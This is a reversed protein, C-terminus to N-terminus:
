RALIAAALLLLAALSTDGAMQLVRMKRLALRSLVKLRIPRRDERLGATIEDDPATAFYLFSARDVQGRGTLRPRIVLVALLVALVLAAAAAATLVLAMGEIDDAGGLLSLAAVLLGDLTLLLGAKTDCRSIESVTHALANDLNTDTRDM